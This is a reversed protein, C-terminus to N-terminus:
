AQTFTLAGKLKAVSTCYDGRPSCYSEKAVAPAALVLAGLTAVLLARKV